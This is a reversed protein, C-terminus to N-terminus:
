LQWHRLAQIIAYFEVDYTTNNLRSDSLEESFFAVSHEEQSLVAGIGVKSADCDVEFVKGFNQANSLGFQMVLWEYLGKRTKFATKWEDGHRIRIQHYDSRLDIKSYVKSSALQDLMDDLCPIPYCYKVTIKNIAQSDVCMRWTGDKKPTLLAPVVCPSMSERILGKGLAEEVQWQLEEHEKPSMRYALKSPLSSGSILDIHHQIDRIHPLGLPLEKPMVDAYKKILPKMFQPVLVPPEEDPVVLAYMIRSQNVEDIFNTISLLIENGKKTTKALGVVKPPVLTVKVNDKNFSYTNSRGDHTTCRDFQWPLGKRTKFATKWEDGPRIRIQHYDSRLDIKSYVKSGALQDLMDDLCPIPYCYKVIIKNIAQSDVCMRWTGDKKPTLLAPVVCPSISERILGKGLAEEVQWQLEEHEKPSMRYALKSPLSSGLILDIHHQIDRIHPLGKKTTKALGVVKPPVLMVKVNDKNFSYTNSRGDHTTCRDFQWPRGFLIHCADMSVIYRGEGEKRYNLSKHGPEGYKSCKFTKNPSSTLNGVRSRHVTTPRKSM